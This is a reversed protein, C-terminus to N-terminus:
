TRECTGSDYENKQSSDENPDDLLSKVPKPIVVINLTDITRHKIMNEWIETLDDVSNCM